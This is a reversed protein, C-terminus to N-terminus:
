GNNEENLMGELMKKIYSVKRIKQEDCNKVAEVTQQALERFGKHALFEKFFADNMKKLYNREHVAAVVNFVVFVVIYILIWYFIKTDKLTAWNIKGNKDIIEVVLASSLIGTAFISLVSFLAKFVPSFFKKM